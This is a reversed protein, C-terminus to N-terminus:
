DKDPSDQREMIKILQDYRKQYKEAKRLAKDLKVNAKCLDKYTESCGKGVKKRAAIIRSRMGTSSLSSPTDPCADPASLALAPINAEHEPQLDDPSPPPTNASLNTEWQM